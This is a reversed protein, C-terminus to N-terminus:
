LFIKFFFSAISIIVPPTIGFPVLVIIGKSSDFDIVKKCKTLDIYSGQSILCSDGYSRGLGYALLPKNSNSFSLNKLDQIKIFKSDYTSYINGWSKM